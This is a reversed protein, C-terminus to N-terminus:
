KGTSVAYYPFLSSDEAFVNHSGLAKCANRLNYLGKSQFSCDYLEQNWIRIQHFHSVFTPHIM